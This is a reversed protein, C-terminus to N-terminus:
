PPNPNLLRLLDRQRRKAHAHVAADNRARRLALWGLLDEMTWSRRPLLERLLGPLGVTALATSTVGATSTLLRPPELSPRHPGCNASRV